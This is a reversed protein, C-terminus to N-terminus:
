IPSTWRRHCCQGGGGLIPWRAALLHATKGWGWNAPPDPLDLWDWQTEEGPTHESIANIRGTAGACAPCAPRLERTRILRTLSPYSLGFGLPQLSPL